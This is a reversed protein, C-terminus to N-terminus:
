RKAYVKSTNDRNFQVVDYKDKHDGMEMGPSGMPMGPVALGRANKPKEKLFKQILDAPVHGEFAYGEAFGTHCSELSAPVGGKRKYPSVDGVDIADVDFGADRVHKVWAKCCGCGPDKYVTMKIKPASAFAFKDIAFISLSGLTLNRIAERRNM